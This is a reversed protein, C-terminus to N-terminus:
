TLWCVMKQISKIEEQIKIKGDPVMKRKDSSCGKSNRQHMDALPSNKQLEEELCKLFMKIKDKNQM